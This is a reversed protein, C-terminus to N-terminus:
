LPIISQTLPPLFHQATQTSQQIIKEVPVQRLDAVIQAIQATNRPHNRKEPLMFPADSELVFGDTPLHPIIERIKRANPRLLVSGLGIVLGANLLQKATQLSGSFGHAFGGQTFQNTRLSQLCADLSKRQHLVIPRNLKQALQIQTDFLSQQQQRTNAYQEHFDLGIEGVLAHPHALLFTQLQTITDPTYQHAFFPHIGLAIHINANIQTQITQQWDDISTAVSLFGHVGCTASETIINPLRDFFHADSLHCHTDIIGLSFNNPNDM